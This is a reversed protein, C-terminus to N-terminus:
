GVDSRREAQAVHDSHKAEEYVLAHYQQLHSRPHPTRHQVWELASLKQQASYFSLEQYRRHCALKFIAAGSGVGAAEGTCARGTARVSSADDINVASGDVGLLEV